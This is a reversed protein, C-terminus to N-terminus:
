NGRPSGNLAMLAASGSVIEAKPWVLFNGRQLMAEALKMRYIEKPVEIAGLSALHATVFQADLLHFGGAVLRAALHVLAVKSADTERHFMSEGFFAGGLSVGYLGGVLRDERWAEVTHAHGIEFLERYLKRIRDNIWTKDRGDYAAACGDIVADFDYDVRVEFRDSRIRKALSKSIVIKDLPFIGRADPDVWFLNPDDASEAMPFLGISYARLLIDSTIEFQNRLRAM